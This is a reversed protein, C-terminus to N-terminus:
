GRDAPRSRQRVGRQGAGVAAATGAMAAAGWLLLTVDADGDFWMSYALITAGAVVAAGPLRAAAQRRRAPRLLGGVAQAVVLLAVVVCMGFTFARVDAPVDDRGLRFVVLVLAAGLLLALISASAIEWLPPLPRDRDQRRRPIYDWARSTLWRSALAGVGVLVVFVIVPVAITRGTYGVIAALLAAVPVSTVAGVLWGTRFLPRAEPLDLPHVLPTTDPDPLAVTEEMDTM